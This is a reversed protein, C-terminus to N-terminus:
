TELEAELKANTEILQNIHRRLAENEKERELRGAEFCAGFPTQTLPPNQRFFAVKEKYFKM